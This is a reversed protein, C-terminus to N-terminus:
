GLPPRYVRIASIPLPQGDSSTIKLIHQGNRLGQALTTTQELTPDVIPSPVYTDVFNPVVSWTITFGDTVTIHKLQQLWWATRDIVIRGSKSVFPNDAYSGSGDDGTVSGKLTFDFDSGSRFRTITVTWDEVQLPARSRVQLIAGVEWPWDKGQDPHDIWDAGLHGNPRTMSYLEPFESPRRGDIQIAGTAITSGPDAAIVDIRNGSFPLTLTGNHFSVDTGVRYTTVLGSPDAAETPKYVLYRKVLEAILFNGHQNQHGDEALLKAPSYGQDQLYQKWPRRIDVLAAGYRKAIQPILQYSMRDSWESPEIYPDTLLMVEATTTERTKRVIKEYDTHSGFVHFILLDPYFPYLDHEAPAVLCQSACGGISRNKIIFHTNPFRTRLDNAVARSWELKTFSQGYFLIRVTNRHEPTSTAMLQMSRQINRGLTAPDAAPAPLPYAHVIPVICFFLTCIFVAVLLWRRKVVAM